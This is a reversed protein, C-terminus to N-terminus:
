FCVSHFGGDMDFGVRHGRVAGDTGGDYGGADAVDANAAEGNRGRDKHFIVCIETIDDVVSRTACANGMGLVGDNCKLCDAGGTGRQSPTQPLLFM